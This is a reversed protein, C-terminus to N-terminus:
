REVRGALVACLPVLHCLFALVFAGLMSYQVVPNMTGQPRLVQLAIRSLWLISAAGLVIGISFANSRGSLVLAADIAGFLVLSLSFFFNIAKIAIILETANPDVYSYWRWVAPVSFHWIGFGISALSGVAVLAKLFVGKM